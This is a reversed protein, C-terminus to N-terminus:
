GRKRFADASTVSLAFGTGAIRYPVAVRSDRIVVGRRNGAMVNNRSWRAVADANGKQAWFERIAQLTNQAKIAADQSKPM